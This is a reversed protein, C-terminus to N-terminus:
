RCHVQCGGHAVREKGEGPEVEDEDERQDREVAHQRHALQRDDRRALRPQLRHGLAAAAAGSARELQGGIGAAEQRGHLDADRQDADEGAGIRAGAEAPRDGLPQRKSPELGVGGLRDAEAHDDDSVVKAESTMPSSTGLCNASREGSGIAATM